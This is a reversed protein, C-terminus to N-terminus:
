IGSLGVHLLCKGFLGAYPLLALLLYPSKGAVSCSLTSKLELDSIESGQTWTLIRLLVPLFTFSSTHTGPPGLVGGFGVDSM